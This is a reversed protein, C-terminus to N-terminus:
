GGRVERAWQEWQAVAGLVTTQVSYRVGHRKAKAEWALQTERQKGKGVKTEIGALQGHPGLAILIDPTGPEGGTFMGRVEGDAGRLLVKGSNQRWAWAGRAQLQALISACLGTERNPKRKM